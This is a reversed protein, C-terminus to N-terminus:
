LHGAPRGALPLAPFRRANPVVFRGQRADWDLVVNRIVSRTVSSMQEEVEYGYWPALTLATGIRAPLYNVSPAVSALAAPMPQGPKIFQKADIAPVVDDRPVPRLGDAGALFFEVSFDCADACNSSGAVLLTAGDAKRYVAMTLTQDTGASDDIQLYGNARDVTVRRSASPQLAKDVGGADKLFDLPGQYAGGAVQQAYYMRFYDSISNEADAAATGAFFMGLMAAVLLARRRLM